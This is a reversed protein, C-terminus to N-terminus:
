SGFGLGGSNTPSTFLCSAAMDTNGGCRILAQIARERPFGLRILKSIKEEDTIGGSVNTGGPASQTQMPGSSGSIAQTQQFTPGSNNRNGSMRAWPNSAPTHSPQSVSTPVNRQSGTSSSSSSSFSSSSSSSSSSTAQKQSQAKSEALIKKEEEESTAGGRIRLPLDKEALFPINQGGIHLCNDKLDICARHKKLQDLGFLFEMGQQDLITFSSVFFESGIQLKATHVRGVIKATGVGKAVGAFRRDILRMIGCRKACEVSMITSQAGSDVFATLQINNVTMPVYLMVVRGFSEPNYEVAKEMNEQVNKLRITEQIKQQAALNFPDANLDMIAKQENRKQKAKEFQQQVMISELMQTNNNVVAQHMIPNIRQLERLLHPSSRISQMLLVPNTFAQPPLNALTPRQGQPMVQPQTMRPIMQPIRVKAELLDGNKVGNNKLIADDALIKGRFYLDLEDRPINLEPAVLTKLTVVKCDVALDFSVFKDGNPTTVSINM